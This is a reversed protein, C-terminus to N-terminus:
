LAPWASRPVFDMFVETYAPEIKWNAARKDRACAVARRFGPGVDYQALGGGSFPSRAHRSQIILM